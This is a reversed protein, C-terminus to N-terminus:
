KKRFAGPSMNETEKFVRGLHYEDAFGTMPAIAKLPLNTSLLLNGVEEIRLRRFDKVPSVGCLGKYKRAFHYKSMGVHKAIDELILPASLHSRMFSRVNRILADEESPLSLLRYEEMIATFYAKQLAANKGHQNVEILWKMLLRIKGDHDYTLCITDGMEGVFAIFQIEVPNKEDSTEEHCCGRPYLLVDGAKAILKKDKEYALHLRGQVLVIMENRDDHRHWKMMWGPVPPVRGGGLFKM